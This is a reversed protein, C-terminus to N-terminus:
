EQSFSEQNEKLICIKFSTQIAYEFLYLPQM